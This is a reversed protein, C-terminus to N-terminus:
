EFQISNAIAEVEKRIPAKAGAYTEGDLQVRHGDVEIIWVHIQMGFDTAYRANGAITTDYWLYFDNPACPLEDPIRISVEAGPRGDITIGQPATVVEIGPVSAIAEAMDLATPGAVPAEDQACPDSFIGDADDEWVIFAGAAPVAGLEKDWGFSGNSVWEDTTVEFTMPIGELNFPHRGIALPGAPPVVNPKETPRPTVPTTPTVVPTVLPTPSPGGINSTQKPLLQLGVVIAALVAALAVAAKTYLNMQRSRWAPWWSRRQPTADLQSLVVQLVHDASDYEDERIWSRVLSSIDHGASM